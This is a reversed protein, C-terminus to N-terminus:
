PNVTLQKLAYNAHLQVTKEKDKSLMELAKRATKIGLNGLSVAIKQKIQITKNESYLYNILIDSAQNKLKNDVQKGLNFIIEESTQVDIWNLSEGLYAIAEANECWSLARVIPIKLWDPTNPSKLVSFLSDIADKTRIRGLSLVTQQCVEPNLDFLLPKIKAVIEPTIETEHRFGLAIVAEKRVKAAKDQLSELLIQTIEEQHFSGLSEVVLARIEPNPDNVMSLLPSITESSRIQTLAKIVLFRTNEDGTLLQSLSVVAKHGLNGLSESAVTLLENEETEQLIKVLSFVVEPQPFYGLTRGAFWRLEVEETEDEWIALLPAIAQQGFKPFLKAFDWRQQFDGQEFLSFALNLADESVNEDFTPYLQLFQSVVTLDQTDRINQM